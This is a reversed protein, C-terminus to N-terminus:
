QVIFIGSKKKAIQVLLLAAYMNLRQSVIFFPLGIHVVDSVELNSFLKPLYMCSARTDRLHVSGLFFKTGSISEIKLRNQIGGAQSM